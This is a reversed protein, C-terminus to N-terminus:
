AESTTLWRRASAEDPFMRMPIARNAAVTESFQFDKPPFVHNPAIIAQKLDHPFLDGAALTTEYLDMTTGEIQANSLDVLVACIPQRAHREALAVQVGDVDKRAWRGSVRVIVLSGEETFEVAM